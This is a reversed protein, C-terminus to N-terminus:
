TRSNRPRPVNPWTTFHQFFPVFSITAMLIRLFWGDYARCPCISTEIRERNLWSFASSNLKTRANSHKWCLFWVQRTNSISSCFKYSKKFCFLNEGNGNFYILGINCCTPPQIYFAHFVHFMFFHSFDLSSSFFPVSCLFENCCLLDCLFLHSSFSFLFVSDFKRILM